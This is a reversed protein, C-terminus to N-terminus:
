KRHRNDYRSIKRGSSTDTEGSLFNRIVRRRTSRISGELRYYKLPDLAFNEEKMLQSVTAKKKGKHWTAAAAVSAEIERLENCKNIDTDLPSPPPSSAYNSIGAVMSNNVESGLTRLVAEM